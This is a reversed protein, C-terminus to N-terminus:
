SYVKQSNVGRNGYLHVENYPIEGLVQSYRFSIGGFGSGRANRIVIYCSYVKRPVSQGLVLGLIFFCCGLAYGHSVVGSYGDGEGGECKGEAHV